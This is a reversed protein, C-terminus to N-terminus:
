KSISPKLGMRRLLDAYRPDSRLDDFELRFAITTMESGGHQFGKELWAFAQDKDGLAAYVGAVHLGSAEGGAYKGELERLIRLASERREAVAECYGLFSLYYAAGGSLEVAKKLDASAEDYRRQKIRALGRYLYASPFDPNIEIVKRSQELASEIDNRQLQIEAITMGIIPSLPDLEEARRIERLADELQGITIYYNAFWHHATPYNPNLNIARKFEEEAEAWRWESQYIAALSTHAEALADDIKLARHVAARALPLTDSASAGAYQQLVIYCDAVGVYGLAFNPDHDVAQQFESLARKIGDATRKNWYYRGRLYSQYAGANRTDRKTLKQQQEGSLKLRLKETVERAIAQKVTVLDSLKREYEQGWVQAGTSTDILDVQVNLSEGFQRVRGMLVAGVNLERGVARPDVEKGKYRFATSRAIVKLQQLETLSNILAESIGDSLYETDANGSANEFPMVAISEIQKSPSLYRYGFFGGVMILVAVILVALPKAAQHASLRPRESADALSERPEAEAGRPLIATADTINIQARMAAENPPATEHLIATAPEDASAPGFLLESGDDLCFSLSDDNYDRGCDPCRKM